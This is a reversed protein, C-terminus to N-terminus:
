KSIKKLKTAAEKKRKDTLKVQIQEQEKENIIKSNKTQINSDNKSDKSNSTKIASIKTNM